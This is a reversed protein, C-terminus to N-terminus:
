EMAESSDTQIGRPLRRVRLEILVRNEEAIAKYTILRRNDTGCVTRGTALDFEWQHWPCHLVRGELGQVYRGPDAPLMTGRLQGLCVPAGRHPCWNRVAYIEREFRFVGVEHEDIHVLKCEGLPFDEVAGLDRWTIQFSTM